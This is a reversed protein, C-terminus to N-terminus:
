HKWYRAGFRSCFASGGKKGAIGGAGISAKPRNAAIRRCVFREVLSVRRPLLIIERRLQDMFPELTRTDDSAGPEREQVTWCLLVM